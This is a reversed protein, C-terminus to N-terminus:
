LTSRRVLRRQGGARIADVISSSRHLAHRCGMGALHQQTRLSAGDHQRDAIVVAAHLGAHSFAERKLGVHSLLEAGANEIHREIAFIARRDATFCLVRHQHGFKREGCLGSRTDTHAHMRDIMRRKRTVYHGDRTAGGVAQAIQHHGFYLRDGIHQLCNSREVCDICFCQWQVHQDFRRQRHVVSELDSGMRAHLRETESEHIKHRRMGARYRCVTHTRDPLENM